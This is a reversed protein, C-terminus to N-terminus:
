SLAGWRARFRQLMPEILARDLDEVSTGEVPQADHQPQGRSEFLAQVEYPNLRRDGDGVRIFAGNPLGGGKYYCPKQEPPLEPIEATLVTRGEEEWLQILPRLPPEMQDSCLAGLDAQLKAAPEVGSVAFGAEEDVGLFITGGGATNSFASLTEWLRRPLQDRARKAEVGPIESGHQRLQRLAERLEERTM